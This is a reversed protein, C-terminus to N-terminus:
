FASKGRALYPVLCRVFVNMSIYGAKACPSVEGHPMFDSISGSGGDLTNFSIGFWNLARLPALIAHAFAPRVAIIYTSATFGGVAINGDITHPNYLGEGIKKGVASVAATKGTGLRLVDGLRVTGAAVLNDNAYIYHGATLSLEGGGVTSMAVFENRVGAVKHSFMFVRSYKDAGVKLFGGVSVEDIRKVEGSKLEVTVSSDFCLYSAKIDYEQGGYKAENEAGIEQARIQSADFEPTPSSPVSCTGEENCASTEQVIEPDVFEPTYTFGEPPDGQAKISLIVTAIIIVLVPKAQTIM